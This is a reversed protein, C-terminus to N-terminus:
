PPPPPPPPPALAEQERVQERAIQESTTSNKTVQDKNAAEKVSEIALSAAEAFRSEAAWTTTLKFALKDSLGKYTLVIDNATYGKDILSEANKLLYAPDQYMKKLADEAAALPDPSALIQGWNRPDLNAGVGGYLAALARSMNESTLPRGRLLEMFTVM